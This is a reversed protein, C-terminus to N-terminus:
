AKKCYFVPEDLPLAYRSIDEKPLKEFYRNEEVTFGVSRLREAYDKGYMRVHDSQGFAKERENPSTISKDEYTNDLLPYFLPVQLIAFGGPKLVRYIESMAKYDDAVHEMVHNCLAVDFKGEDFPINHM